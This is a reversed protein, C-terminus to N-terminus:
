NASIIPSVEIEAKYMEIDRQAEEHSEKEKTVQTSETLRVVEKVNAM